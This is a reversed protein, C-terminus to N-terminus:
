DIPTSPLLGSLPSVIEKLSTTYLQKGKRTLRYRVVARDKSKGIPEIVRFTKEMRGMWRQHSATAIELSGGSRLMLEDQLEQRSANGLEEILSLLLFPSLVSQLENRFRDQLQKNSTAPPHQCASAYGQSQLHKM